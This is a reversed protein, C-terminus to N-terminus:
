KKEKVIVTQVQNTKRGDLLLKQNQEEIIEKTKEADVFRLFRPETNRFDEALLLQLSVIKEQFFVFIVKKKRFLQSKAKEDSACTNTPACSESPHHSM